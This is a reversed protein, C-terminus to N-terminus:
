EGALDILGRQAAVALAHTRSDVGLKNFISTLHYRVTSEAVILQHAVQKNSMGEAVLKLVEQERTSLLTKTEAQKTRSHARDGGLTGGDLSDLVAAALNTVESFSLTRGARCAEEFRARGLRTQLTEVVDPVGTAGLLHLLPGFTDSLADGAGLLRALQEEDHISGALWWAIMTATSVLLRRDQFREIVTLAQRLSAAARATDGQFALAMGLASSAVGLRNEDGAQEFALVALQALRESEQYHGQGLALWALWTRAYGHETENGAQQWLSAAEELYQRPREAGSETFDLSARALGVLSYATLDPDGLQRGMAVAEELVSRAREVRGQLALLSGLLSLLRGRLPGADRPVRDAARQLQQVGERVYGRVDWFYGLAAAMRCASEQDGAEWLWELASRLNDHEHDLCLFWHRQGAGALRPAALEALHLFYYAHASAVKEQEGQAALQERAFERVSELLRFDYGGSDDEETLLLSKDELSGVAELVDLPTPVVESLIAEAAELTFRGAFFGLVRFAAQEEVSLLDYSWAIAARLTQQRQPVEPGAWQLLSLRQGLRDLLMQPSLIQIRSAALEIALPLGDLHVMLECVARANETTLGFSPQIMRARRLFLAVSPVNALQELPPLREPDVLELPQLHYLQESLLHLPERSTVLLKLHPAANLLEAVEVAPLVQEVNDLILLMQREGLYHHLVDALLATGTDPVGLRKGLAALFYSGERVPALDIFDVGHPFHPAVTRGVEQALRTKGVGGPGTLTLLRVDGAVLLSAIVKLDEQRDVIPYPEVRAASPQPKEPVELHAM